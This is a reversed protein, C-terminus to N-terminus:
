KEVVTIVYSAGVVTGKYFTYTKPTSFDNLTTGNTQIVSGIKVTGVSGKWKATLKSIDTGKLVNVTITKATNDIVGIPAPVLGIFTFETVPDLATTNLTYIAETGNQAVVKISKVPKTGTTNLNYKTRDAWAIDNIYIKSLYSSELVLTVSSLNTGYNAALTITKNQEDINAIEGNGSGTGVGTQGLTFKTLAKNNSAAFTTFKVTYINEAGAAPKVIYVIPTTFNIENVGSVQEINNVYVKAINSSLNFTPKFTLSTLNDPVSFLIENTSTITGAVLNGMIEVYFNLIANRKDIVSVTKTLTERQYKNGQNSTSTAVVTINYNGAANYQVLLSDANNFDVGKAGVEGWVHGSTGDYLTLFEAKAKRLVYFPVGVSADTVGNRQFSIEFTPNPVIMKESDCANFLLLALFIFSYKITNKM